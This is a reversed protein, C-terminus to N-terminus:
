PNRENITRKEKFNFKRYRNTHAADQKEEQKLASVSTIPMNIKKFLPSVLFSFVLLFLV